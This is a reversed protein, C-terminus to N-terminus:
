VSKLLMPRTSYLSQSKTVTWFKSVFRLCTGYLQPLTAHVTLQFIPRNSAYPPNLTVNMASNFPFSSNYKPTYVRHFAQKCHAKLDMKFNQNSDLHFRNLNIKDWLFTSTGLCFSSSSLGNVWSTATEKKTTIRQSTEHKLLLTSLTTQAVLLLFCSKKGWKCFGGTM